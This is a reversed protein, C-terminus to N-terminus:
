GPSRSLEGAPRARRRRHGCVRRVGSPDRLKNRDSRRALAVAAADGSGSIASKVAPPLHMISAVIQAPVLSDDYDLPGRRSRLRREVDYSLTLTATGAIGALTSRVPWPVRLGAM